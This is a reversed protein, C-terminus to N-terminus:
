VVSKRDVAAAGGDLQWTVWLTLAISLLALLLFRKM